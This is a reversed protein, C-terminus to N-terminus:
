GIVSSSRFETEDEKAIALGALVDEEAAGVLAAFRRAKSAIQDAATCLKEVVAELPNQAFSM